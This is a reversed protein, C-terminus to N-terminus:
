QKILTPHLKFHKSLYTLVEDGHATLNAVLQQQSLLGADTDEAGAFLIEAVKTLTGNRETVFADRAAMQTLFAQEQAPTWSTSAKLAGRMARPTKGDNGGKSKKPATKTTAEM